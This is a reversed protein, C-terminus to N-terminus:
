TITTTKVYAYDLVEVLGYAMTIAMLMGGSLAPTTNAAVEPMWGLAMGTSCNKAFPGGGDVMYAGITNAGSATGLNNTYHPIGMFSGMFGDAQTQALLENGAGTAFISSGSAVVDARLNKAATAPLFGVIPGVSKNVTHQAIAGAVNAVTFAAGSTGVSTSANVFEAWVDTELKELCMRVGDEIAERHLGDPGLMNTREGLKTFQRLIGVEAVAATVAATDFAVNSLGTAETITGSLATDKTIKSFAATKTGPALPEVRVHLQAPNPDIAYPAVVKSLVSTNLWGTLTATTSENAM